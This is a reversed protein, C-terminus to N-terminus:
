RVKFDANEFIYDIRQVLQKARPKLNVIATQKLDLQGNTRVIM